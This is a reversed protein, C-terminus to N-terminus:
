PRLVMTPCDEGDVAVFGLSKYLRVLGDCDTDRDMPAVSLWIADAGRKKMEAVLRKALRRGHGSGRHAPDVSLGMFYGVVEGPDFQDWQEGAWGGKNNRELWARTAEVEGIRGAADGVFEDGDTAYFYLESVYGHDVHKTRIVAITIDCCRDDFCHSPGILGITM